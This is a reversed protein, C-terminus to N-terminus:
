PNSTAPASQTSQVEISEPYERRLRERAEAAEEEWGIIDFVEILRSLSKPAFTTTPYGALVFAYYERAADYARRKQYFEATLYDKEALREEMRRAHEAATTAEESGQFNSAVSGCHLLAARTYEQDLQPRPSLAVYSECVEFRAELNLPSGPHDTPIRQFYTAAMIYDGRAQLARGLMMLAEPVRPDGLHQQVFVQLFESATGYDGSEYEAVARAYLDDPTLAAPNVRRSSCGTLVVLVACLAGLRFLRLTKM